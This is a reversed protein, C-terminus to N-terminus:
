TRDAPSRLIESLIVADRAGGPTVLAKRIRAAASAPEAVKAEAGGPRNMLTGLRHDFKEHLRAEVRDDATSINEGLHAANEALQSEPLHRLPGRRAPQPSEAQVDLNSAARTPSQSRRTVPKPLDQQPPPSQRRQRRPPEEFPDLPPKKAPPQPPAADGQAARRLFEEVESRLDAQVPKAAPKPAPEDAIELIPEDVRQAEDPPWPQGKEEAEGRAKDLERQEKLGVLVQRIVWFAVVLLPGIADLFGAAFLGPPLAATLPAFPM